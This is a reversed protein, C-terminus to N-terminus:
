MVGIMRGISIWLNSLPLRSLEAESIVRLIMLLLIYLVVAIIASVLLTLLNGALPLLLKKLLMVLLGAVCASLAPFLVSYLWDQRYKFTRTIFVFCSVALVGTFIIVSYIIGEAGMLSVKLMLFLAAIHLVFSIALSILFEKVMHIKLMIQGFLYAAAYFFIIICGQRVLSIATENEGRYIGNVFADAMVAMFVSIPIAFICLTKVAGGIRDRMMRYEEKEHASVIKGIHGYLTLCVLASCIGILVAVKGYYAGWLAARPEGPVMRNICYNFFRQDILMFSNYVIVLLAFPLSNSLISRMVEESNEVRRTGDQALQKRRTGSYLAFVLLLYILTVLESIMIGLMVGLAAYAYAPTEQKLLDSVKLGYDYMLRGGFIAMIFMAIKEIYQSHVVLVGFGNGNFYGRFVNVLSALILAPAVAMVAKKSMPELVLTTSIIGSALVLVVAAIVSIFLSLKFAVDFIRGASKYQERKIRYRLMGTLTKSIGQSFLLTILTFIEFAPAFLGVGEDGIIRCLPIRLGLCIIYAVIGAYATMNSRYERQANNKDPSVERKLIKM